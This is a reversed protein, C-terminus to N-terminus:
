PIAVKEQDTANRKATDALAAQKNWAELAAKQVGGPDGKAFVTEPKKTTKGKADTSAGWSLAGLYKSHTGDFAFTTFEISFTKSVKRPLAASDHMWADTWTAKGTRKGFIAKGAHATADNDQGYNASKKGSLRDVAWGADGSAADTARPKENEFLLPAGADLTKAIQVFSIKDSLVTEAPTFTIDIAAGVSKATDNGPDTDNESYNEVKFKGGNTGLDARSITRRSEAIPLPSLPGTPGGAMVARAVLDAEAESADESRSVDLAGLQGLFRNPAKQATHALEHAILRDGDINGPRFAGAGWVINKGVTYAAAGIARAAQAATSDTHVRVDAFDRGFRPEMFERTANDLPRGASSLADLAIPPVSGAGAIPPRAPEFHAVTALRPLVSIQLSAGTPTKRASRFGSGQTQATRVLM